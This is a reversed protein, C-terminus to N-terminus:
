EIGGEFTVENTITITGIGITQVYGNNEVQIDYVYTKYKLNKTDDHELVIHYFYDKDFIITNDKLTKQVLVDSTKYNKKVTFWMKEAQAKIVEDNINKRQFKFMFTDGRILEIEM